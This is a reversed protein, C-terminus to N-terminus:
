KTQPLFVTMVRPRGSYDELFRSTAEPFIDQVLNKIPEKQEPSIEMFISTQLERGSSECLRLVQM